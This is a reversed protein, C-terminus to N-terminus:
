TIKFYNVMYFGGAVFLGTVLMSLWPWSRDLIAESPNSPNVYVPVAVGAKHAEWLAKHFRLRGAVQKTLGPIRVRSSEYSQGAFIYKYRVVCNQNFEFNGGDERFTKPRNVEIVMAEARTWKRVRYWQYTIVIVAVLFAALFFWSAPRAFVFYGRSSFHGALGPSATM